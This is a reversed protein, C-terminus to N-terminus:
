LYMKDLTVLLASKDYLTEFWKTFGKLSFLIYKKVPYKGSIAAARRTLLEYVSKDIKENKFKCEGIVASKEVDSIGVVDIDFAQQIKAGNEDVIHEVGWYTGVNTIFSGLKGQAGKELTYTRCMNEFVAGMFAHLHPKVFTKYYVEGQGIEILSYAAPIFKYWFKFMTDKLVYQTKKKNKEETVCKRKEVLDVEMLKELCYLVTPEREKVKSAINNLNNEGSAIQEIVNNALTTDSFEQTLLNKTEDFLYGNPNFFLNKINEDLSKKKDFLSLYKAVGGTVGYCIAKDEASYNPVFLAAERYNFADLKIQNDRRGFIPSKESLIKSEMFSLSSGCLILMINKKAWQTDIYKQLISLLAEDKEAWYPLEDIVIVIKEKGTKQMIIDLVAEISSFKAEAYNPDLVALAQKAFLEANKEGGVKTATYFISKKGKLFEAILASKGIRRRGYIITMGFGKKEYVEKLSNLEQTRGIFM